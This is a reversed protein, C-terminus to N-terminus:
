NYTHGLLEGIKSILFGPIETEEIFRDDVMKGKISIVPIEKDRNAAKEELCAHRCGNVFLILDIKAKKDTILKIEFANKKILRQFNKIIEPRDIEPNCGGCYRVGILFM